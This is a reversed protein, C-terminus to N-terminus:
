KAPLRLILKTGSGPASQIELHGAIEGARERMIALGHHNAADVSAPDFGCGNDEITVALQDGAAQVTIQLLNAQSHKRTNVMAEQIIRLLQMEGVPSLGALEELPLGTIRVVTGYSAEYWKAYEVLTQPFGKGTTASKLGAISDRIDTHFEDALEILKALKADAEALRQRALCERLLQFQLKLYAWIQGSGDHLERGLRQRETMISLAKQQELIQTQARKQESVDHLVIAKGLNRGGAALPSVHVRYHRTASAKLLPLEGQAAANASALALLGPWFACAVTFREGARVLIQQEFLKAAAPNLEVILGESDIVILSDNMNSAVAAEALEMLNFIRLRYLIWGWLLGSLLFAPPLPSISHIQWGAIWGYHGAMLLLPCVVLAWAQLRRLGTVRLSWLILLLTASFVLIYGIVAALWYIPGRFFAFVDGELFAAHLFWGHWRNTLLALWSLATFALLAQQIRHIKLGKHGTFHLAVMVFLPAIAIICMYQLTIWFLKDTVASSAAVMVLAALWVSRLAFTLSLALAAPASRYRWLYVALAEDVAAALLYFWIDNTPFYHMVPLQPDSVLASFFNM